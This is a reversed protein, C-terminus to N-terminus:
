APTIEEGAWWVAEHIEKEQGVMRGRHSLMEELQENLTSRAGLGLVYGLGVETLGTAGKLVEMRLTERSGRRVADYLLQLWTRRTLRDLPDSLEASFVTNEEEGELERNLAQSAEEEAQLLCDVKALLVVFEAVLSSLRQARKERHWPLSLTQLVRTIERAHTYLTSVLTDSGERPTGTKLDCGLLHWSWARVYHAAEIRDLWEDTDKVFASVQLPIEEERGEGKGEGKVIRARKIVFKADLDAWDIELLTKMSDKWRSVQVRLDTLQTPFRASGPFKWGQGLRTLIYEWNELNREWEATTGWKKFQPAESERGRVYAREYDVGKLRNRLGEFEAEVARLVYKAGKLEEELARAAEEELFLLLDVKVLLRLFEGLRAALRQAKTHPRVASLLSGSLAGARDLLLYLLSKEWRSQQDYRPKREKLDCGLLWRSWALAEHAEDVQRFWEEGGFVVEGATAAQPLVTEQRVGKRHSNVGEVIWEARLRDLDEGLLKELAEKWRRVAERAKALDAPRDRVSHRPFTWGERLRQLVFAQDSVQEVWRELEEGSVFRPPQQGEIYQEYNPEILQQLKKKLHRM